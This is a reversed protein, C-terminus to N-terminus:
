KCYKKYIDGLENMYDLLTVDTRRNFSETPNMLGLFKIITKKYTKFVKDLHEFDKSLINKPIRRGINVLIRICKNKNM